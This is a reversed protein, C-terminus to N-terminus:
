APLGGLNFGALDVRYVAVIRNSARGPQKPGLRTDAPLHGGLACSLAAVAALSLCHRARHM